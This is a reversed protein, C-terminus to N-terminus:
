KYVQLEVNLISREDKLHMGIEDLSAKVDVLLSRIEEKRKEIREKV